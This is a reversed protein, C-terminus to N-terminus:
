MFRKILRLWTSKNKLTDFFLKSQQDKLLDYTAKILQFMKKYEESNGHKDPHNKLSQTKYAKKIEEMNNTKRIGLVEYPSKYDEPKNKIVTRRPAEPAPRAPEPAPRAPEPAPRPQKPPKPEASKRGRKKLDPLRTIDYNLQVLAEIIEDKTWTAKIKTLIEIEKKLLSKKESKWKALEKKLTTIPYKGLIDRM